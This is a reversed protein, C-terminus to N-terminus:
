RDICRFGAYVYPYHPQFWNRFSPRLMPAATRPSGGKLVFHKGDFFPASYGPYTAFTRFGPFPAFLTSTWEWGNGRMGLVGFPGPPILEAADVACPDFRIADNQSQDVLEVHTDAFAARQWQAESPLARGAWRAYASAEAHSVYVPWAQPLPIAEFMSRWYWDGDRFLWFAPHRIANHTLWQWDVDSWCERRTYGGDRVFDLYQGNTVKYKDIAFAPVAVDHAEFENDWGFEGSAARLGLMTTGAPIRLTEPAVEHPARPACVSTARKAEFPLQHLLYSLTEAHMQRHEIAVHLLNDVHAPHGDVNQLARDLEARVQERYRLFTPLPPWDSPEDSPLNGEVPDIGFAFLKDLAERDSSLGFAPALLNWDFAELHGIYFALRHREAIPRAFLFEPEVIDFLADTEARAEHLRAFLHSHRVSVQSM